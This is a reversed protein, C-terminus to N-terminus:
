QSFHSFTFCVKLDGIRKPYTDSSSSDQLKSSFSPCCQVTRLRHLVRGRGGPDERSGSEEGRHSDQSPCCHSYVGFALFQLELVASVTSASIPFPYVRLLIPNTRPLSHVATELTHIIFTSSGIVFVCGERQGGGDPVPVSSYNSERNDVPLCSAM